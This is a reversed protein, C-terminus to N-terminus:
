KWAPSRVDSCKLRFTSPGQVVGTLHCNWDLCSSDESNGLPLMPRWCIQVFRSIWRDHQGFEVYDPRLQSCLSPTLSPVLRSLTQAADWALISRLRHLCSCNVSDITMAGHMRKKQFSRGEQLRAVQIRPSGSEVDQFALTWFSLLFVNCAFM